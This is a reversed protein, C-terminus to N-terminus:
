EPSHQTIHHHNYQVRLQHRAGCRSCKKEEGDKFRIEGIHQGCCKIEISIINNDRTNVRYDTQISNRNM